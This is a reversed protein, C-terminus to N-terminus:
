RMRTTGVDRYLRRRVMLTWLVSGAVMLTSTVAMWEILWIWLFARRKARAADNEIAALAERADTLAAVCDEYEQLIYHEDAKARMDGVDKIEEELKALNAGVKEVFGIFSVLIDRQSTYAIMETRILHMLALDQPIERGCAYYVSYVTFDAYFDWDMFDVGWGPTWDTCFAFSRGNGVTWFAMFPNGKPDSTKALLRSGDKPTVVNYGGFSPCSDWPLATMLPDEPSVVVPKWFTSETLGDMLNVPLMPGISTIDWTPSDSYGGFSLIGGIMMLGLGGEDVSSSFWSLWKAPLTDARVDSLLILEGETLSEYTRPLYLRLARQAESYTFYGDHVTAPVAMIDIAPDDGIYGIPSTSPLCDGLYYVRAVEAVTGPRWPPAGFV